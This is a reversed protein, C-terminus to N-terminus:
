DMLVTQNIKQEMGTTDYMWKEQVLEAWDCLLAQM